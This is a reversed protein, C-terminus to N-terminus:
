AGIPAYAILVREGSAFGSKFKDRWKEIEAPYKKEYLVILRELVAPDKVLRARAEFSPGKKFDENRGVIQKWRGYDGVWLRARDRGAAVSKAKWRDSATILMAAGDLWAFWVEAHCSSEQGDQKLPSVYVYPSTELARVTAAALAPATPAAKAARGLLPLTAVGLALVLFGRRDIPQM